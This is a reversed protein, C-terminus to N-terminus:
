RALLADLRARIEEPGLSRVPLPELAAGTPGAQFSPTGQIGAAEAARRAAALEREVLASGREALMRAADLGGVTGAVERLLGDTVWGSNEAGQNGYLLHVVNWLRGQAGAALATRLAADSEPGIFALGRFVVRVYGPRVYEDVIAPFAERAWIACYPCQLDAYEVLTVPADPAGLAIGDQPIGRLLAETEAAAAVEGAADAVPAPANSDGRSGVVSAAVMLAALLAAGGIVAGVLLKTPKPSPHGRVVV